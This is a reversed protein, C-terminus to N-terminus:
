QLFFREYHHCVDQKSASTKHDTQNSFYALMVDTVDFIDILHCLFYNKLYYGSIALKDTQSYM